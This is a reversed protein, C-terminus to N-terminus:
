NLNTATLWAFCYVPMTTIAFLGIWLPNQFGYFLLTAAIIFIRLLLQFRQGASLVRAVILFSPLFYFFFIPDTFNM